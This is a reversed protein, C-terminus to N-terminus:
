WDRHGFFYRRDRDIKTTFENSGVIKQAEVHIINPMGSWTTNQGEMSTSPGEIQNQTKQIHQITEVMSKKSQEEKEWNVDDNTKRLERNEFVQKKIVKSRTTVNVDVVNVNVIITKIEAVLQVKTIAVFKGHFM